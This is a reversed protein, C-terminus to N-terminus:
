VDMGDCVLGAVGFAAGREFLETRAPPPGVGVVDRTVLFVVPLEWTAALALTESVVGQATAGATMQCLALRGSLAVGAAVPAHGGPIGVGGLVGVDLARVGAAAPAASAGSAGLNSM